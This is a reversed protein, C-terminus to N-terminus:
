QQFNYDFDICLWFLIVISFSCFDNNFGLRAGLIPCQSGPYLYFM